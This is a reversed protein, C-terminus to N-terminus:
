PSWALLHPAGRQWGRLPSRWLGTVQLHWTLLWGRPAPFRSTEGVGARLSFVPSASCQCSRNAAAEKQFTQGPAVKGTWWLRCQAPTIRFTKPQEGPGCNVCEGGGYSERDATVQNEAFKVSNQVILGIGKYGWSGKPQFPFLLSDCELALKSLLSKPFCGSEWAFTRHPQLTQVCRKPHFLLKLASGSPVYMVAFLFHRLNVKWLYFVPSMVNPGCIAGGVQCHNLQPCDPAAQRPDRPESISVSLRSTLVRVASLNDGPALTFLGSVFSLSTTNQWCIPNTPAIQVQVNVHSVGIKKPLDNYCDWREKEHRLM